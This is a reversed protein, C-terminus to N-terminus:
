IEGMAKLIMLNALSDNTDRGRILAGKQSSEIAARVIDDFGDPTESTNPEYDNLLRMAHTATEVTDKIKSTASTELFKKADDFTFSSTDVVQQITEDSVKNRTATQEIMWKFNEAMPNPRFGKEMIVQRVGLWAHLEKEKDIPAELGANKMFENQSEILDLEALSDNFLDISPQDSNALMNANRRQTGALSMSLSSIRGAVKGSLTFAILNFEAEAMDAISETTYPISETTTKTATNSNNMTVEYHQQTTTENNQQKSISKISHM